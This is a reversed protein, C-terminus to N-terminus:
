THSRTKTTASKLQFLRRAIRGTREFINVRTATRRFAFLQASTTLPKKYGSYEVEGLSPQKQPKSSSCGYDQFPDNPTREVSAYESSNQASASTNHAQQIPILCDLYTYLCPRWGMTHAWRHVSQCALTLPLPSALITFFAGQVKM